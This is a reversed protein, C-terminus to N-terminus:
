SMSGLTMVTSPLHHEKKISLQTHTHKNRATTVNKLCFMNSACVAAHDLKAIGYGYSGHIAYKGVNVMSKLWIYTFIGYM